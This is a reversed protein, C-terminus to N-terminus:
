VDLTVEAEWGDRGERATANYLTAAKVSVFPRDLGVGRARLDIAGDGEGLCELEVPLWQDVEALYVLENLWGVLIAAHDGGHQRLTRREASWGRKSSSPVLDGFAATAESILGFFTPARLRVTVESTHDVLVHGYETM